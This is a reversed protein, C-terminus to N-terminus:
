PSGDIRRERRSPRAVGAGKDRRRRADASRGPVADGKGRGARRNRYRSRGARRRRRRTRRRKRNSRNAPCSCASPPQRSPYGDAARCRGPATSLSAGAPAGNVTGRRAASRQWRGEALRIDLHRRRDRGGARNGLPHSIHLGARRARGAACSIQALEFKGGPFSRRLTQVIGGVSSVSEHRM